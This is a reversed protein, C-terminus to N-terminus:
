EEETMVRLTFTFRRAARGRAALDPWGDGQSPRRMRLPRDRAAAASATKASRFFLEFVKPRTPRSAPDTM